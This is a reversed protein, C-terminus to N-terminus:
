ASAAYLSCLRMDVGFFFFRVNNVNSNLFMKSNKVPTKKKTEVLRYFFFVAYVSPSFQSHVRAADSSRGSCTVNEKIIRRAVTAAASRSGRSISFTGMETRVSVIRFIYETCIKNCIKCGFDRPTEPLFTTKRTRDASM